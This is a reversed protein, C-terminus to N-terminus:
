RGGRAPRIYAVWYVLAVEKPSFANSEVLEAM